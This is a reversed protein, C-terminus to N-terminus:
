PQIFTLLDLNTQQLALICILALICTFVTILWFVHCSCVSFPYSSKIFSFIELYHTWAWLMNVWVFYSVFFFFTKFPFSNLKRWFSYSHSIVFSKKEMQFFSIIILSSTGNRAGRSCQSGHLLSFFHCLWQRLVDPKPKLCQAM